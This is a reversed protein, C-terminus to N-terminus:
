GSFIIQPLLADVNTDLVTLSSAFGDVVYSIRADELGADGGVDVAEATVDGPGSLRGGTFFVLDTGLEFDHITDDGENVADFFFVDAGAGGFLDDDGAEGILADGGDNGYMVDNGALGLLQDTGSGGQFTDAERGGLFLTFGTLDQALYTNAHDQAGAFGEIDDGITDELIAESSGTDFETITSGFDFVLPGTASFYTVIDGEIANGGTGGFLTDAGAGGEIADFGAGGLILDDGAGGTLVDSGDLGALTNAAGDGTLLDDLGSGELNEFGTFSDLGHGTNQAAGQNELSVFVGFEVDGLVFGPTDVSAFSLTDLGDGGDATDDGLGLDVIDNGTSALVTDNGGEASVSDDSELALIRENADTATFVDDEPTLIIQDDEPALLELEFIETETRSNNFEFTQGNIEITDRFFVPTTVLFEGSESLLDTSFLPAESETTTVMDTVASLATGDPAFHQWVLRGTPLGSPQETGVGETWLLVFSGDEFVELDAFNPADATIQQVGTLDTLTSAGRADGFGIFLRAGSGTAAVTDEAFVVVFRDTGPLDRVQVAIFDQGPQGGPLEEITVQRQTTLGTTLVTMVMPAIVGDDAGSNFIVYGGDDLQTGLGEFTPFPTQLTTVSSTEAVVSSFTFGPQGEIGASVSFIAGGNNLTTVGEFEGNAQREAVDEPDGNSDFKQTYLGPAIGDPLDTNGVSNESVFYAILFGGDDTARVFPQVNTPPIGEEPVELLRDGGPLVEGTTGSRLILRWSPTLIPLGFVDTGTQELRLALQVITGDDLVDGVPLIAEM